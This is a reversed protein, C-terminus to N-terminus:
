DQNDVILLIAAINAFTTALDAIFATVNFEAKEEPNLPVVIRDGPYIMIGAGNFMGLKKIKGSARQVYINKKLTNPQMGGAQSIYKKASQREYSFVGPNMVNGDIIVINQKPLVTVTSNGLIEQDLSSNLVIRNETIARGDNGFRLTTLELSIADPNARVTFGGSMEIADEITMGEKFQYTGRKMVEGAVTVTYFTEYNIDEYVFIKDGTVLNFNDSKSYPIVFEISYIQSEDKRLVTIENEFITKRFFPDNFGGALDLVDKLTNEGVPFEGPEKVRGMVSVKSASGQISRISVRDGNNVIVDKADRYFFNYSSTAYDDSVREDIPIITEVNVVSGAKATLGGAYNILDNVSESILLEYNGSRKVHGSIPIRKSILPVHIVDGELLHLTSFDKKGNMFFQYFDVSTIVQGDRILQVDRLTGNNNVGGAQVLATFIDSFPHVINIGPSAVEGSFYINISKLKGTDVSLSTKNENGNLTSYIKGLEKKLISEAESITKNSLNIFGLKEFFVSGERSIVFKERLNTEGWLSLIIEDGPGLKYNLPVPINDFFNIDRKFYEYGFDPSLIVTTKSQVEVTGPNILDLSRDTEVVPANDKLQGKIADLQKNTLRNLDSVSVQAFIFSYLGVLAILIKKM